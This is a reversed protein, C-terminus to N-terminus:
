EFLQVNGGTHIFLVAGDGTLKGRGAYDILGAAAKGSYVEDLFIGEYTVFDKIAGTCARTLKRYGEGLYNDDVFVLSRLKEGEYEYTILDLCDKAIDFVKQAQEGSNRSVAMGTIRGQWGSIYQGAVLGAQTGASGSAVIIESFDVGKSESYEMIESMAGIYGISGRAVSGGVPMYYPKRGEQELDLIIGNLERIIDDRDESITFSIDAGALRDLLLNATEKGPKEGSLLLYVDLGNVRGATATMRCWNSQVAGFTILSDYGKVLADMVLYDLKRTKNGGFAFATLDDRKCYLDVALKASLNNLRHLPTPLLSMHLGPIDKLVTALLESKKMQKMNKEPRINV